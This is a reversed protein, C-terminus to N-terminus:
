PYFRYDSLQQHASESLCSYERDSCKRLGGSLDPQYDGSGCADNWEPQMCGSDPVERWDGCARRQFSRNGRRLGASDAHAAAANNNVAIAAEAGTLKCLNEAFHEYRNGRKGDELNLELNTYGTMLPVLESVLRDGLPARGLNTHLIVGTANIVRQMQRQSRHALLSKMEQLIYETYDLTIGSLAKLDSLKVPLGDKQGSLGSTDLFVAPKEEALIQQRMADRLQEEVKRAAELVARYGYQETLEKTLEMGMIRDIKPLRRFLENRRNLFSKEEKHAKSVHLKRDGKDM